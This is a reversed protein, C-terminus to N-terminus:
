KGHLLYSVNEGHDDLVLYISFAFHKASRLTVNNFNYHHFHPIYLSSHSPHKQNSQLAILFFIQEKRAARLPGRLM